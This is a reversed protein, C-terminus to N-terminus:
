VETVISQYTIGLDLSITVRIINKYVWNQYSAVGRQAHWTVKFSYVPKNYFAFHVRKAPLVTGWIVTTTNENNNATSVVEQLCVHSIIYHSSIHVKPLMYFMGCIAIQPISCTVSSFSIQHIQQQTGLGLTNSQCQWTDSVHLCVTRLDWHNKQFRSDWFLGSSGIRM